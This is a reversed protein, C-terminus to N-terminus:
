YFKGASTCVIDCCTMAYATVNLRFFFSTCYLWTALCCLLCFFEAEEVIGWDCSAKASMRFWHCKNTFRTAFLSMDIFSFVPNAAFSNSFRKHLMIRSKRKAYESLRYTPSCSIDAEDNGLMDNGQLFWQQKNAFGQRIKLNQCWKMYLSRKGRLTTTRVLLGSVLDPMRDSLCLM